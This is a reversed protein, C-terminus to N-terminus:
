GKGMIYISAVGAVTSVVFFAGGTSRNVSAHRKRDYDAHMWQNQIKKNKRNGNTSIGRIGKMAIDRSTPFRSLIPRMLPLPSMIIWRSWSKTKTKSEYSKQKTDMRITTLNVGCDTSAREKISNLLDLFEGTCWLNGEGKKYFQFVKMEMHLWGVTFRLIKRKRHRHHKCDHKRINISDLQDVFFAGCTCRVSTFSWRCWSAFCFKWKRGFTSLGKMVLDAEKMRQSSKRSTLIKVWVGSRVTNIPITYHGNYFLQFLTKWHIKQGQISFQCICTRDM